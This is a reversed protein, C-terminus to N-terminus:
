PLRMTVLTCLAQLPMPPMSRNSIKWPSRRAGQEELDVGVAVLATPAVTGWGLLAPFALHVVPDRAAQAEEMEEEVIIPMGEALLVPAVM